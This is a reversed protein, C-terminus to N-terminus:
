NKSFIAKIEPTKAIQEATQGNEDQITVDAGAAMLMKVIEANNNEVAWHLATDRYKTQTNVDAGKDILMKVIEKNNDLRVSTFASPYPNSISPHDQYSNSIAVYLPTFGSEDKINVDAGADILMGVIELNNARAAFYLPTMESEDKMNVDVGAAILRRVKEKNNYRTAIARSFINKQAQALIAKMEPTKAIQEATQGNKNQITFDAGVAMLMKVIEANNNEVALHLATERYKTQTNVDAGKDILMRAIREENNLAAYHLPTQGNKNQVDKKVFENSLLMEIIDENNRSVARHFPTEGNKDQTNGWERLWSLVIDRMDTDKHKMVYVFIPDRYESLKKRQKSATDLTTLFVDRINKIPISKSDITIQEENINQQEPQSNQAAEQAASIVLQLNLMLLILIKTKKM